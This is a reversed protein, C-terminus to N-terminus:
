RQESESETAEIEDLVAEPAVDQTIEHLDADAETRVGRRSGSKWPRRRRKGSVGFRCRGFTGNWCQASATLRHHRTPRAQGRAGVLAPKGTGRANGTWERKGSFGRHRCM